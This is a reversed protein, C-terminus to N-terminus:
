RSAFQTFHLMLNITMLGFLILAGWKILKGSSGSMVKITNRTKEDTPRITGNFLLFIYLSFICIVIEAIIGVIEM